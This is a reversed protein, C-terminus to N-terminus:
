LRWCRRGSQPHAPVSHFLSRWLRYWAVIQLFPVTVSCPAALREQRSHVAWLRSQSSQLQCSSPTVRIIVPAQAELDTMAYDLLQLSRLTFGGQAYEQSVRAQRTYDTDAIQPLTPVSCSAHTQKASNIFVSISTRTFVVTVLSRDSLITPCFYGIDVDLSVKTM